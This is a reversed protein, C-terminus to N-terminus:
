SPQKSERLGRTSKGGSRTILGDLLQLGEPWYGLKSDANLHGRAGADIWEGGWAAARARAYDVSGYPDNSSSVIITPFPLRSSPLPGFGTACARPFAPAAPDPVAVLLAGRISAAHRAAWHAVALCGLSHAILVTQERKVPLQQEIATVWDDCVANDWDELVLRRWDPHTAQWQSQWHSPGSNGIGPVVFVSHTV